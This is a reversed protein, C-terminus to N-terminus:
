VRTSVIETCSRHLKRRLMRHNGIEVAALASIRAFTSCSIASCRFAFSTAIDAFDFFVANKGAAVGDIGKVALPNGDPYRIVDQHIVGDAGDHAHGRMVVAVM